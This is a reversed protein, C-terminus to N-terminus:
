ARSVDEWGSLHRRALAALAGIGAPHDNLAPIYRFVQGGSELFAERNEMDIEELTELNDAAFGPCIADVSKVGDRALQRLTPETYPELWQARGLRSQFSLLWRAPDLGLAAALLEASRRCQREYPDGLAIARAPIGHFSMLLREGRGHEAWHERVRRALAAIYDPDDHYDRVFRLEPLARTRLGWQAVADFVSATTAAAYQPYMPLVLIRTAGDALMRDLVGAVAPEGYRMAYRVPLGLDSELAAAQRQTWLLLPSGDETWISAYKAASRRSRTPLIVGYLIPWWVLRPIEVVRPDSLFERLYRRLAAPTPAEPTGLNVLLVAAAQTM